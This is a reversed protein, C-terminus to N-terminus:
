RRAEILDHCYHRFHPGLTNIWREARLRDAPDLAPDTQYTGDRMLLVAALSRIGPVEIGVVVKSVDIATM